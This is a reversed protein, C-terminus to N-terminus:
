IIGGLGWLTLTCKSMDFPQPMPIEKPNGEEDTGDAIYDYERAPIDIQAVYDTTIDPVVGTTLCGNVDKCIDIHMAHDREWAELNLTIEDNFSIRNGNIEYPIKQGANKEVVIM